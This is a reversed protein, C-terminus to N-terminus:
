RVVSYLADRLAQERPDVPLAWGARNMAYAYGLGRDPDAFGFSGGAGTHGYARSSSGFQIAPFPKFLGFAFAIDVRLVRDRGSRAPSEAPAELASITRQDIGLRTGGTAFEAYAKAVARVEGTGNASPLEIRLLDRRNIDSLRTLVKPNRFVGSTFSRPNVLALVLRTPMEHLHLIAAVPSGGVFTALRAAPIDDPLGIYFEIGLPEAVEDAFYRGITRGQPDVRRLLQSEYWGLSQGHYGQFEGPTWKPAQAALIQGLRDPDALTNLDLPTDIVALGAQHALLQRVTILEKGHQAFEPWYAAVREDLEFLGRSHAVAMALSAMGKTTSYMTVLTDREWPKTRAPDRYGGWLDVVLRDDRYVACAAGLEKREVFNCRFADVVAGYGEDVDGGILVDAARLLRRSRM